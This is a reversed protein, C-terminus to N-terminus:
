RTNKYVLKPFVVVANWIRKIRKPELTLRWLWEIHHRRMWKPARPLTDAIMAFAGGVGMAINVGANELLNRTDEIWLSQKPSGLAVFIASVEGLGEKTLLPLARERGRVFPSSSPTISVNLMPYKKRLVIATRQVEEPKGGLLYVAGNKKEMIECIDFMTDVGTIPQQNSFFFKVLSLAPFVSPTLPLVGLTSSARRRQKLYERAWLISSGDPIVIEASNIIDKFQENSQAEVVMEANLTIIHALSGGSGREGAQGAPLSGRMHPPSIAADLYDLLEEKSPFDCDVGGINHSSHFPQLKRM